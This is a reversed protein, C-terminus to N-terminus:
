VGAVKSGSFYGKMVLYFPPQTPSKVWRSEITFLCGETGMGFKEGQYKEEQVLPSDM